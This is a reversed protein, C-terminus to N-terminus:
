KTKNKKEPVKPMKPKKWGRQMMKGFSGEVTKM